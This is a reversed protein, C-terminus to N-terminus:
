TGEEMVLRRCEGVPPVSDPDVDRLVVATTRVCDRKDGFYMVDGWMDRAVHPPLVGKWLEIMSGDNTLYFSLTRKKM